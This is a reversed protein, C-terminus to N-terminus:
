ESSNVPQNLRSASRTSTEALPVIAATEIRTPPTSFIPMTGNPPRPAGKGVSPLSQQSGIWPM